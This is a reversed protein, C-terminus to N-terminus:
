SNLRRMILVCTTVVLGVAMLVVLARLIGGGALKDYEKKFHGYYKQAEDRNQGHKRLSGQLDDLLKRGEAADKAASIGEPRLTGVVNAVTGANEILDIYKRYVFECNQMNRSKRLIEENSANDNFFSLASWYENLKLNYRTLFILSYTYRLKEGPVVDASGILRVLDSSKFLDDRMILRDAFVAAAIVVLEKKKELHGAQVFENVLSTADQGDVGLSCIAKLTAPLTLNEPPIGKRKALSVVKAAVDRCKRCDDKNGRQHYLLSLLTMSQLDKAEVVGPAQLQDNIAYSLIYQNYKSSPLENKRYQKELYQFTKEYAETGTDKLPLPLFPLQKAAQVFRAEEFSLSIKEVAYGGGLVAFEFLATLVVVGGAMGFGGAAVAGGGLLALGFSTAAAGTYGFLGGIWAGISAMVPTATGGSLIATGIAVLGLGIGVIWFWISMSKSYFEDFTLVDQGAHVGAVLVTSVMMIFGGIALAKNM